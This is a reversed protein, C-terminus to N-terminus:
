MLDLPYKCWVNWDIGKVNSRNKFLFYSTMKISEVVETARRRKGQFIRDNRENWITWLTTFIIGRLIYKAQKTLPQSKTIKMLDNVDFVISPTLRCWSDVHSWIEAAFFCGTFIHTSTETDTDCLGCVVSQLNVGRKYLEVKTPLRNLIARWVMIKCKLPTWCKWKMQMDIVPRSYSSLLRRASSVTFRNSGSAKWRWKDLGGKWVYDYIDEMLNFLDSVEVDSSPEARWEWLLSKSGSVVRIRDAVVAWKKTELRFLHPYTLRLPEERLWSDM